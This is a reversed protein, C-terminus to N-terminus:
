KGGIERVRKKRGLGAKKERQDKKVRIVGRTAPRDAPPVDGGQGM